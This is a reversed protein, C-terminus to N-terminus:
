WYWVGALGRAQAAREVAIELEELDPIETFEIFEIDETDWAMNDQTDWDEMHVTEWILEPFLEPIEKIILKLLELTTDQEAEIADALCEDVLANEADTLSLAVADEVWGSQADQDRWDDDALLDGIEIWCERHAWRSGIGKRKVIIDHLIYDEKCIWCWGYHEDERATRIEYSVVGKAWPKNRATKCNSCSWSQMGHKCEPACAKVHAVTVGSCNCTGCKM